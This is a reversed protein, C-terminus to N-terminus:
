VMEVIWPVQNANVFLLGSAEDWAAGGWEAGGDLGPYVVNMGPRLAQYLSGFHMSALRRELEARTEPTYDSVDAAGFAQRVFPPPKTPLPQSAAPHEGPIAPGVVPEERLPFLPEGTERHFLFTHGTKTVQ